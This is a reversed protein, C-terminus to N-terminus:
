LYRRVVDLVSHRCLSLSTRFVFWRPVEVQRQAMASYVTSQRQSWSSRTVLRTEQLQDPQSVDEAPNIFMRLTVFRTIDSSFDPHRFQIPVKKCYLTTSSPGQRTDAGVDAVVRLHDLDSTRVYEGAKGGRASGPPSGFCTQSKAERLSSYPREAEIEM